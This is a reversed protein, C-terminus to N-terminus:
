VAQMHVSAESSVNLSHATEEEEEPLDDSHLEPQNLSRVFQTFSPFHEPSFFYAGMRQYSFLDVINEGLLNKKIQQFGGPAMSASSNQGCVEVGHKRCAKKIDALLLEPSSLSARSQHEDSLDMGPLIMKCSNRAFMEAVVEYGDRTTTNYYGATLESPHSRTKYWSHMLPIKGCVTAASESFTSAALSLLLNGHSILQNSYWSLFFDGYLSDWSGGNDRFFNNSNPSQDYTPVDHPGGLGWLPNGTAEAHQKLIGLMNKDYCQFEGVGPIQKSKTLMHHSPYRLEGDPGLGMSIGTLTSGMFPSFSSKFSECFEHYVQIPTRGDLVPLDDVALSLCEKYHQGARDTFFINPNSEGIRSVWEPLPIKPRKSAHFSLSVHLKLGADQVMKALALYGSWEYKGMAEKEVIGWWVPLEVGEVGLLKLAKLGAAIARAHNVTNCDSVSDLPLGVFLRVGDRSRSIRSSAAVKESRVAESQVARLTFRIGAKRWRTSPSFCVRSKASFAKSVGKPDFCGLERYALETKGIKAQSCGIVSVEM